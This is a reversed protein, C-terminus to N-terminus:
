RSFPSLMLFLEVDLQPVTVVTNGETQYVAPEATGDPQLAKVTGALKDPLTIRLSRVPQDSYNLLGLCYSGDPLRRMEFGVHPLPSLVSPMADNGLAQRIATVVRDGAVTCFPQAEADTLGWEGPLLISGTAENVILSHQNEAEFRNSFKVGFVEALAYDNRMRLSPDYLSSRGTALIRGGNKCFAKLRDALADSVGRVHPLILLKVGDLGELHDSLVYRFPIQHQLLLQAMATMAKLSDRDDYGMAEYSYLIAVPAADVSGQLARHLAQHSTALQSLNQRAEEDRLYISDEGANEGRLGWPGNSVGAGFLASEAFVRRLQRLDPVTSVSYPGVKRMKSGAGPVVKVGIAAALKMSQHQTIIQSQEWGPFSQNEAYLLDLVGYNGVWNGGEVLHRMHISGIGFNAAVVIGPKRERAHRAIMEISTKTEQSRFRVWAQFLPDRPSEVRPITVGTLDPLGMELWPDKVTEVLYQHFAKQCADCHCGDSNLNDIWVGDADIEIAQDVCRLLYQRFGDHSACPKVRWYQEGYEYPHGDHHHHWDMRKWEVAEPEEAFLTEPMITGYQIYAFVRVGEAHYNRILEATHAIEPAETKLGFGKFFHTTVWNISAKRLAQAAQPSRLKASWTELSQGNGEQEEHFGGIRRYFQEPEWGAWTWVILYNEAAPQVSPLQSDLPQSPSSNM